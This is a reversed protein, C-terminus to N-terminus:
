SVAEFAQLAASHGFVKSSGWAPLHPGSGLAHYPIQYATHVCFFINSRYIYYICVYAYWIYSGDINYLWILFITHSKYTHVISYQVVKCQGVHLIKLITPDTTEAKLGRMDHKFDLRKSHRDSGAVGMVIKIRCDTRWNGLCAELKTPKNKKAPCKKKIKKLAREVLRRRKAPFAPLVTQTAFAQLFM